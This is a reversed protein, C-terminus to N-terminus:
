NGIEAFLRDLQRHAAEISETASRTSIRLEQFISGSPAIGEKANALQPVPGCLRDVVTSIREALDRAAQLTRMAGDVAPQQAKTASINGFSSAENRADYEQHIAM